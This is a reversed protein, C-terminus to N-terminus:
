KQPADSDSIEGLEGALKAAEIAKDDYSGLVDALATLAEVERPTINARDNKAFGYLIFSNDSQRVRFAIITRFGGRKGAGLRAIRKKYLAGGLAGDHLGRGLEECALLFDRDALKNKEAWKAVTKVKFARKM